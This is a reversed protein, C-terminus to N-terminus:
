KKLDFAKEVQMYNNIDVEPHQKMARSPICVLKYTIPLLINGMPDSGNSNEIVISLTGASYVFYDHESIGGGISQSIPLAIYNGTGDSQYVMVSGTSAVASTLISISSWSDYRYQYTADWNFNTATLTQSTVNANGNTGAPGQAGPAGDKGKCANLLLATVGVLLCMSVSKMKMKM